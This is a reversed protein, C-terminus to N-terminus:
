SKRHSYLYCHYRLRSLLWPCPWQQCRLGQRLFSSRLDINVFMLNLLYKYQALIRACFCNLDLIYGCYLKVCFNQVFFGCTFHQHFQCRPLDQRQLCSPLCSSSWSAFCDCFVFHSCFLWRLYSSGLCVHDSISFHFWWLGCIYGVFTANKLRFYFISIKIGNISM